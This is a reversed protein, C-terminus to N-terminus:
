KKIIFIFIKHLLRLLIEALVAVSTATTDYRRVMVCASCCGLAGKVQVRLKNLVNLKNIHCNAFHQMYHILQLM